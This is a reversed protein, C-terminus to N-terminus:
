TSEGMEGTVGGLEITELRDNIVLYSFSQYLVILILSYRNM